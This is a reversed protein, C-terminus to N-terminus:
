PHNRDDFSTSLRAARPAPSDGAAARDLIVGGAMVWLLPAYAAFPDGGIVLLDADKGPEISGARSEVGLLRAPALTIAALADRDSLGYRISWAANERLNRVNAGDGSFFAFPIGAAALLAPLRASPEPNVRLEGGWSERADLFVAAGAAALEDLIHMAERAGEIQIRAGFESAIRLAALIEARTEARVRIPLRGELGDRLVAREGPLLWSALGGSAAPPWTEESAELFARRLLFVSGMRTTPLRFTYTFPRGSRLDRNGQSAEPTLSASLFAARELVATELRSGSTKLVAGLGGVVNRAGPTVAATTVGAEAARRREPHELDVADLVRSAPTLESFEEASRGRIGLDSGADIFGPLLSGEVDILVVGPDGPRVSLGRGVELIKGGRVAVEGDELPPGSVPYLRRARILYVTAPPELAAAPPSRVAAEREKMEEERAPAPAALLVARAPPPRAARPKEFVLEGDIFVKEVAAALSFPDGGWVVLDADKGPEIAGLRGDLGYLAAAESTLGRLAGAASLGERMALVASTLLDQRSGSTGFVIPIGRRELAAPAAHSRPLDDLGLPGAIVPGSLPLPAGPGPWARGRASLGDIFVARRGAAAFSELIREAQGAWEIHLLVPLSPAAAAVGGALASAGTGGLWSEFAAITGSLSTPHRPRALDPVLSAKVAARRELVRLPLKGPVVKLVSVAGGVVNFRGPALAITTVGRRLLEPIEEDWPDFADLVELDDTISSSLDDTEGRLGAHSHADIFGPLLWKGELDHVEAGEPAAASELLAAIRGGELLVTVGDIRRLSSGEPCLLTAGRLAKWERRGSEPSHSGEPAVPAPAGAAGAIPRSARRAGARGEVVVQVVRSRADFPEGDLLVLDGDKGPELSGLRGDIGLIRAPELTIARLAAQPELGGRVAVCAQLRLHRSGVATRAGSSLALAVGAARLLTPTEEDHGAYELARRSFLVPEVVVPIGSRALEAALRSARTGGAVALRLGFEEKLRRAYEVDDARHAELLVPLRGELARLMAEKGGEMAPRRPKAPAKMEGKAEAEAQPTAPAKAAPERKKVEANHAEVAKWYEDWRQRYDRAAIFLGRLRYYQALREASTSREGAVGLAAALHSERELLFADPSAAADPPSALHRLKLIAGLGGPGRSTGPAIAICTVGEDRVIRWFPEFLTMGDAISRNEVDGLDLSEGQELFLRSRLDIFGPTIHLGAAEIVPMGAPPPNRSREGASVIRGGEIIVAGDEIVRGDGFHLTGGLVAVSGASHVTEGGLAACLPLAIAGAFCISRGPFPRDRLSTM